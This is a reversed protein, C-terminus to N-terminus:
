AIKSDIRVKALWKRVQTLRWATRLTHLGRGFESNCQDQVSFSSGLEPFLWTGWSQLIGGWSAILGSLARHARASSGVLPLSPERGQARSM